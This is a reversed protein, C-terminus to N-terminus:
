EINYEYKRYMYGDNETNRRLYVLRFAAGKHGTLKKLLFSIGIGDATIDYALSPYAAKRPTNERLNIPLGNAMPLRGFTLAMPRKEHLEFFYDVYAREVRLTADSPDRGSNAGARAKYKNDQWNKYMTLRGNFQMNKSIQAKLNLRFRNSFHAKVQEDHNKNGDVQEKFNFWDCRTRLEAGIV